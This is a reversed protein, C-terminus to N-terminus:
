RRQLHDIDAGSASDTAAYADAVSNLNDNLLRSEDTVGRGAARRIDEIRRLVRVTPSAIVGHSICVRSEVGRVLDAAAAMEAAARHHQAALERLHSTTVRLADSPM